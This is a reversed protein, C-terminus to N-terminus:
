RDEPFALRMDEGNEYRTSWENYYDPPTSRAPDHWPMQSMLVSLDLQKAEFWSMKAARAITVTPADDAVNMTGAEPIHKQFDRLITRLGGQFHEFIKKLNRMRYWTRGIVHNYILLCSRRHEIEECFHWLFLSAVKPDGGGFLADRRELIAGFLPSFTAEIAAAYALHFELDNEKHIADFDAICNDLIKQVGPYHVCMAEVHKQHARSHTLEQMNFDKIEAKIEPDTVRRSAEGMARCLYREFCIIHISIANFLLSIEPSEPRWLFDVGEFDFPIKRVVLDSM